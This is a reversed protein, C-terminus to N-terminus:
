KRLKLLKEILLKKLFIKINKQLKYSLKEIINERLWKNSLNKLNYNSKFYTKNTKHSIIYVKHKDLLRNFTELVNIYPEAINIYTVM